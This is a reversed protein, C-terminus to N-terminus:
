NFAFKFKDMCNLNFELYTKMTISINHLIVYYWNCLITTWLSLPSKIALAYDALNCGGSLKPGSLRLHYLEQLRPLPRLLLEMPIPWHNIHIRLHSWSGFAKGVEHM